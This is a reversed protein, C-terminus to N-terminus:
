SSAANEKEKAAQIQRQSELEIARNVAALVGVLDAIADGKGRTGCCLLKKIAHARAPCTVGFAVLVAYVDVNISQDSDAAQITRLYKKGEHQDIPTSQSAPPLQQPQPQSMEMAYRKELENGPDILLMLEDQTLKRGLWSELPDTRIKLDVCQKATEITEGLTDCYIHGEIWGEYRRTGCQQNRWAAKYGYRGISYGLEYGRHSENFSQLPMPM